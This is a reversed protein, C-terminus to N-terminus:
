PKAKELPSCPSCAPCTFEDGRHEPKPLSGGAAHYALENDQYKQWGYPEYLYPCAPRAWPWLYALQYPALPKSFSCHTNGVVSFLALRNNM